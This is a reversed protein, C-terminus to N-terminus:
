YHQDNLFSGSLGTTFNILPILPKILQNIKESSEPAIMADDLQGLLEDKGLSIQSCIIFLKRLCDVVLYAFQDLSGFLRVYKNIDREALFDGHAYKSRVDYANSLLARQDLANLGCFRLLKAARYGVRFKIEISNNSLLAEIGMIANAIRREAIGSEMIAEQYRDYATSFQDQRSGEALSPPIRFHALFYFLAPEEDKTMYHTKWARLNRTYPTYARNGSRTTVVAEERYEQKISMVRYIGLLRIHRKSEGHLSGVVGNRAMCSTVMVASPLPLMNKIDSEVDKRLLDATTTQRISTSEDLQIKDSELTLGSLFVTAIAPSPEKKLDRILLLAQKEQEEANNNGSAELQSILSQSTFQELLSETHEHQFTRQLFVETDPYVALQKIDPFLQSAAPRWDTRIVSEHSSQTYRPGKEDYTFGEITVLQEALYFTKLKNSKLASKVHDCIAANLIRLLDLADDQLNSEETM